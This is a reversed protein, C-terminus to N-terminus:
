KELSIGEGLLPLIMSSKITYFAVGECIIRGAGVGEICTFLCLAGYIIYCPLTREHYHRKVSYNTMLGRPSPFTFTFPLITSLTITISIMM